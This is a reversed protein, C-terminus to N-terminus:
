TYLMSMKKSAKRTSVAELLRRGHKTKKRYFSSFRAFPKSPKNCLRRGLSGGLNASRFIRVDRNSSFLGRRNSGTQLGQKRRTSHLYRQKLNAVAYRLTYSWSEELGPRAMITAVIMNSSITQNEVGTTHMRPCLRTEKKHISPFMERRRSNSIATGVILSEGHHARPIAEFKAPTNSRRGVIFVRWSWLREFIAGVIM